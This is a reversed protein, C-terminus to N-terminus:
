GAPFPALPSPLTSFCGGEVALAELTFPKLILSAANAVHIGDMRIDETYGSMYLVRLGPLKHRLNEVLEPGGMRPMIVDTLVLHLPGELKEVVSLAEDGNRAELVQYGLGKLGRVALQRVMSEDEVVLVTEGGGRPATEAPTEVSQPQVNVSPLYLRFETGKGVQSELEIFGRCQKVIGYVTSLGLGSGKSKEKTTFFPEFVQAKVDDTMGVGTDQVHLLVYEGPAADPHRATMEEGVQVNATRLTLTGGRPMADRANVALNMIVQEMLGSDTEASRLGPATMTVLEIHEGLTRRLIQDMNMVVTNLDLPQIQLVQKRGFALLQRTLRAAREGARIIEELDPRAAHEPGLDDMVVKTFGLIGTLLNNFDHAIGGALRGISDLKQAQRLENEM